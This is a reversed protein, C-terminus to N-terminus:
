FKVGPSESCLLVVEFKTNLNEYAMLEFEIENYYNSFSTASNAHEKPIELFTEFVPNLSHPTILSLFSVVFTSTIGNNGKLNIKLKLNSRNIEQVWNLNGYLSPIVIKKITLYSYNYDLHIKRINNQTDLKIEKLDYQM